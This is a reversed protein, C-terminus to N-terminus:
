LETVTNYGGFGDPATAKGTPDIQWTAGDVYFLYQYCGKKMPLDISWLGNEGRVLQHKDTDWGNFDGILSPSEAGPAWERYWLGTRGGRRGRNFGFHEHGRSFADLSGELRRIRALASRYNDYRRRLADAYPELWPDHDILGTGDTRAKAPRKGM